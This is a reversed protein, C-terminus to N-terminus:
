SRSKSHYYLYEPESSPANIDMFDHLRVLRLSGGLYKIYERTGVKEIDSSKVKEIRAVMALNIALREEESNRFILLSQTEAVQM